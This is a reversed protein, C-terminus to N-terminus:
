NNICPIGGTSYKQSKLNECCHTHLHNDEPIYSRKILYISVLMESSSAAEMKLTIFVSHMSLNHYIFSYTSCPLGRAPGTASLLAPILTPLAPSATASLFV